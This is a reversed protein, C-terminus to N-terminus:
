KTKDTLSPIYGWRVEDLVFFWIIMPSLILRFISLLNPINM